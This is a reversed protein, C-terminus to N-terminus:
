KGWVGKLVKEVAEARAKRTGLDSASREVAAAYAVVVSRMKKRKRSEVTVCIDVQEAFQELLKSAKKRYESSLPLKCAHSAFVFFLTYFDSKKRWRTSFLNPLVHSLEALTTHFIEKVKPADEFNTEYAQYMKELNAKKNQLGHLVAVALESIFEVDLMRRIDNASFIGAGEWYEHDSLDEMLKIFSGWYAAHRLEQDNLAVVNRNLRRFIERLMLDPLVPINRVVFQYGFVAVRDNPSLDEFKMDAWQPSDAPNLAFKGELFELCARIRQQGDVVTHKEKGHADVEQQMYLEPIPYGHLITDILYGKQADTWVPNRQFPPKADLANADHIQKLWSVSRHTTNLFDPM